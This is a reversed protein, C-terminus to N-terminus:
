AHQQSEWVRMAAWHRKLLVAVLAEGHQSYLSRLTLHSTSIWPVGAVSVEAVYAAIRPDPEPKVRPGDM